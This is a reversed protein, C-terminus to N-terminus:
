SAAKSNNNHQILSTILGDIGSQSLQGQFQSQFSQVMSIGDVSFDIIKWKGDYNMRYSVNIPQGGSRIIQSNVTITQDVAGRIPLFVIKENSFQAMAASYTRIVLIRFQEIFKQKQEASASKWTARGLVQQAMADQNVIPLLYKTVINYAIKPNNRLNPENAKLQGIIVNATSQLMPLPSPAALAAQSFLLATIILLYRTLTQVKM